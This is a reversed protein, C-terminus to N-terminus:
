FVFFMTTGNDDLLTSAYNVYRAVGLLMQKAVAKTCMYAHYTNSFADLQFCRAAATIENNINSFL